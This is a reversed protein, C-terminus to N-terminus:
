RTAKTRQHTDDPLETGLYRCVARSLETATVPDDIDLEATGLVAAHSLTSSLLLLTIRAALRLDHHSIEDRHSELCLALRDTLYDSLVVERERVVPDSAGSVLFARVLGRRERVVDVLFRAITDIMEAARADAWRSPDLAVDATARADECFREHLAQLLGRKDKFRRYFSGVSTRASDAIDSVSAEDFGRESVLREAADLLANLSARSRAQQPARVWRLVAPSDLRGAALM